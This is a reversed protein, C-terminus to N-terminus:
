SQFKFSQLEKASSFQIALCLYSWLSFLCTGLYQKLWLSSVHGLGVAAPQLWVFQFSFIPM